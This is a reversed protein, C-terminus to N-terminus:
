IKAFISKKKYIDSVILYLIKNNLRQSIRTLGVNIYSYDAYFIRVKDNFWFDVVM